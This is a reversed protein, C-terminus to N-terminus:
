KNNNFKPYLFLKGKYEAVVPEAHYKMCFNCAFGRYTLRAYNETIDVGHRLMMYNYVAETERDGKLYIVEQSYEHLRSVREPNMKMVVEM